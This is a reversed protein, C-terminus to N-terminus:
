CVAAAVGWRTYVTCNETQIRDVRRWCHRSGPQAVQDCMECSSTGHWTVMVMLLMWLM